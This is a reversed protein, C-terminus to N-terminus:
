GNGNKRQEAVAMLAAVKQAIEEPTLGINFTIENDKLKGGVRLVKEIAAQADYMEFEIETIEVDDDNDTKGIRTVTKQKIKKLLKTMGKERAVRLDLLGNDDILDGIDGRGMDALLKLAEDASMHIESLRADIEAKIDVNTLLKRGIERATKESYGARRAAEAKNFCKLYESIFVQQRPTRKKGDSM